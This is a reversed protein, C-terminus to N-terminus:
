GVHDLLRQSNPRSSRSSSFVLSREFSRYSNAV